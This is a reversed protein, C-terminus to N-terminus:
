PDRLLSRADQLDSEFVRASIPDTDLVGILRRGENQFHLQLPAAPVDTLSLLPEGRAPDWVRVTSDKGGSALVSGPLTSNM